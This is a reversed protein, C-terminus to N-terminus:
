SDINYVYMRGNIKFMGDIYDLRSAEEEADKDFKKKQESYFSYTYPLLKRKTMEDQDKKCYEMWSRYHQEDRPDNTYTWPKLSDDQLDCCAKLLIHPDGKIFTRGLSRFVMRQFYKSVEPSIVDYKLKGNERKCKQIKLEGHCHLLGSSNLEFFVHIIIDIESNYEIATNEVASRIGSKLINYQERTTCSMYSRKHSENVIRSPDPSITIRYNKVM